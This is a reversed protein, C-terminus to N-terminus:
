KSYKKNIKHFKTNRLLEELTKATSLPLKNSLIPSKGNKIYPSQMMSFIEIYKTMSYNMLSQDIPKMKRLNKLKFKKLTLNNFYKSSRLINPSEQRKNFLYPQPTNANKSYMISKNPKFNGRMGASPVPSHSFIPSISINYPEKEVQGSKLPRPCSKPITRSYIPKLKESNHPSKLEKYLKQNWGCLNSDRESIDISDEYSQNQLVQLSIIEKTGEM